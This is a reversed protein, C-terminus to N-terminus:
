STILLLTSYHIEIHISFQLNSQLTFGKNKKITWVSHPLAVALNLDEASTLVLLSCAFAGQPPPWKLNTRPNRLDMKTSNKLRQLFLGHCTQYKNEFVFRSNKSYM